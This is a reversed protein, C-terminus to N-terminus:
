TFLDDDVFAIQERGQMHDAVSQEIGAETTVDENVAPRDNKYFGKVLIIAVGGLAVAGAIGGAIVANTRRSREETKSNDGYNQQASLHQLFNLTSNNDSYPNTIPPYKPLNQLCTTNPYYWKLMQEKILAGAPQTHLDNPQYIISSYKVSTNKFIDDYYLIFFNDPTSFSEALEFVSHGRDALYYFAEAPLGFEDNPWGEAKPTRQGRWGIVFLSIDNNVLISTLDELAPFDMETCMNNIDTEVLTQNFSIILDTYRPQEIYLHEGMHPYADTVLIVIKRIPKGTKEDYQGQSWGVKKNVVGRVIGDLAGDLDVGTDMLHINSLSKEIDRYNSYNSIDTLPLLLEACKNGPKGFYKGPKDQYALVGIRNHAGFWTQSRRVIDEFIYGVRFPYGLFDNRYGLSSRFLFLVESVYECNDNVSSPSNFPRNNFSRFSQKPIESYHSDSTSGYVQSTKNFELSVVTENGKISEKSVGNTPHARVSSFHTGGYNFITLHNFFSTTVVILATFSFLKTVM